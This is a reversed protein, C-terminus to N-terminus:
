TPLRRVEGPCVYVRARVSARLVPRSRTQPRIPSGAEQLRASFAVSGAHARPRSLTPQSADRTLARPCLRRGM